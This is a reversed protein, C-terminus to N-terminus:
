PASSFYVDARPALARIPELAGVLDQLTSSLDFRVSVHASSSLVVALEGTVAGGDRTSFSREGLRIEGPVVDVVLIGAPLTPPLLSEPPGLNVRFPVPQASTRIDARYTGARLCVSCVSWLDACSLRPDASIIPAFFPFRDDRATRMALLLQEHGIVQGYLLVRSSDVIHVRFPRPPPHRDNAEQCGSCLAMAVWLGWGGVLSFCLRESKAPSRM